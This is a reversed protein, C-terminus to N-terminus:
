FVVSFANEPMAVRMGDITIHQETGRNWVLANYKKDRERFFYQVFDRGGVTMQLHGGSAPDHYEYRLKNAM